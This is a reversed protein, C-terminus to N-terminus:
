PKINKTIKYEHDGLARSLNLNGNVRGDIVQGGANKIRKLEIEDDPKHDVSMNETKGKNVVICRSDGANAVYIDTDTVLCVNATCGAVIM